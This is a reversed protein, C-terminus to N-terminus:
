GPPALLRLTYPRGPARWVETEALDAADFLRDLVADPFKHCCEARLAEGAAFRATLGLARVPVSQPRSSVLDLVVRHEGPEWAARHAFARLDFAGGLERNVRALVNRAFAATVGQPDDYAPLLADPDRTQDLGLLLRDRPGLAARVDRLFAAAERPALNGLSSGLFLVLKPAGGRLGALGEAFRAHLPACRVEPLEAALRARAAELAAASIDVPRYTVGEPLARLLTRTKAASGSGLEVVVRPGGAQACIAEAHADLLAQETRTLYYEPLATIAEFLASGVDDYLWCPPMAKPKAALGAQVDEAFAALGTSEALAGAPRM